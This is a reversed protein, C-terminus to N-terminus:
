DFFKGGVTLTATAAICAVNGLGIRRGLGRWRRLLERATPVTGATEFCQWNRIHQKQKAICCIAGYQCAKGNPYTGNQQIEFM